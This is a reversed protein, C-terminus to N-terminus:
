SKDDHIFKAEQSTGAGERVISIGREKLVQSIYVFRAEETGSILQYAIGLEELVDIFIEHIRWRTEKEKEINDATWAVNMGKVLKIDNPDCLLTLDFPHESIYTLWVEKIPYVAEPDLEGEYIERLHKIYALNDIVTRDCFVVDVEEAELRRYAELERQTQEAFLMDQFDPNRVVDPGHEQILDIAAEQVTCVGPFTSFLNILTTKGSRQTGIVAIRMTLHVSTYGHLM